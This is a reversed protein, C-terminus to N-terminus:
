RASALKLHDDGSRSAPGCQTMGAVTLEATM